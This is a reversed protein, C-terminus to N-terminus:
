NQPTCLCWSNDSKCKRACAKRCRKEWAARISSNPDGWCSATNNRKWLLFDLIGCVNKWPQAQKETATKHQVRVYVDIVQKKKRWLFFIGKCSQMNQKRKIYKTKTYSLPQKALWACSALMRRLLSPGSKRSFSPLSVGNIFLLIMILWLNNLIKKLFSLVGHLSARWGSCKM